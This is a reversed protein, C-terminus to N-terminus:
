DGRYYVRGKNSGSFPLGSAKLLKYAINRSKLCLFERCAQNTLQPNFLLLYDEMAQLHASKSQHKCHPCRWTHSVRLMPLHKCEPCQVGQSIDSQNINYLSQINPIYPSHARVLQDCLKRLQQPNIDYKSYKAQLELFRNKIHPYHLIFQFISQSGPHAKIITEPNSIGIIYEIPFDMIQHAFLWDVLQEQQEQVQIIPDSFGEEKNGYTRIFQKSITDFFLTGSFNKAEIILGFNPTLLLTDIQFFYKDNKIRLDNLIYLNQQPLRDLYYDLNQEGKYCANRIALDEEILSRKRHNIPLRRLLAEDVKIILPLKRQKILM